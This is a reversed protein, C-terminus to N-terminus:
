LGAERLYQDVTDSSSLRPANIPNDHDLAWRLPNNQIYARITNLEHESRVVHEYYNRQWVSVGPTHRLENIRKTVASKYSGVIIGLTPRSQLPSAHRAGVANDAIVIIGHVHNPMIVFADLEVHSYHGPLDDWVAVVIEGYDNLRMVDDVVDGFLTEREHACLTVFYAGPQSYDYDPLRISRRQHRNLPSPVPM